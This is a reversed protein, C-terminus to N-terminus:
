GEPSPASGPPSGRPTSRPPSPPSTRCTSATRRRVPGSSPRATRRPRPRARAAALAAHDRRHPPRHDGALERHRRTAARSVVFRMMGDPDTVAQAKTLSTQHTEYDTSAYWDSGIQVGQYACDTASPARHHGAGRRRGARLPRDVLAALGPRRADVAARDPHQGAGQVPLVAPLRVLDPDLRGAVARGREYKKALLDGRDAGQGAPRAHRRARHHPHRAGRHGLRQLGRPRDDDERRARRRLHVRLQRGADVDLERDDFAMLSTAASDASYAGGMVQFSLDASTGRRGRVVYEVGERLFANFYIADPNDLGQRSFQHTPNVFLPRDLDYDFAMQM